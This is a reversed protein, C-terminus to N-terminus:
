KSVGTQRSFCQSIILRTYKKKKSSRIKTSSSSTLRPPSEIDHWSITWTSSQEAKGLKPEIQVM